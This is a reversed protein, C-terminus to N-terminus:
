RTNKVAQYLTRSTHALFWDTGFNQFMKMSSDVDAQQMNQYLPPNYVFVKFSQEAHTATLPVLCVIVRVFWRAAKGM